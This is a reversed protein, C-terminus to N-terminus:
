YNELMNYKLFMTFFSLLKGHKQSSNKALGAGTAQQGSSDFNNVYRPSMNGSYTPQWKPSSNSRQQNNNAINGVSTSAPRIKVLGSKQTVQHSSTNAGPQEPQPSKSTSINKGAVSSSTQGPIPPSSSLPENETTAENSSTKSKHPIKFSSGKFSSTSLGLALSLALSTNGTPPNSNQLPPTNPKISALQKNKATNSTNTSNKNNTPEYKPPDSFADSSSSESPIPSPTTLANSISFSSLSSQLPSPTRNSGTLNSINQISKSEFTNPLLPTSNIQPSSSRPQKLQIETASLNMKTNNPTTNLQQQKTQQKNSTPEKSIRIKLGDETIPKIRMQTNNGSTTQNMAPQGQKLGTPTTTTNASSKKNMNTSSSSPINPSGKQSASKIGDKPRIMHNSSNSNLPSATLISSEKKPNGGISQSKENM